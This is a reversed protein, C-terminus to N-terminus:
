HTVTYVSSYNSYVINNSASFQLRVKYKYTSGHSVSWNYEYILNDSYKNYYLADTIKSTFTPVSSFSSTTSMFVEIYYADLYEDPIDKIFNEITVDLGMQSGYVSKVVPAKLKINSSTAPYSNASTGESNTATVIYMNEGPHPATDTYSKSTINSAIRVWAPSANPTGDFRYVTYSTPTGCGSGTAANWSISITSSGSCNVNTPPCPEYNTSSGGGGGGGSTSIKASAYSSKSSEGANNEATVKYYYTTGPNASYDTYSTQYVSSQFTYTGSASTSRYVNYSEAGSVSNWTVVIYSSYATADVGTPTSPKSTTSGGGGGSGSGNFTITKDETWDSHNGKSDYAFVSYTYTTGSVVDDDMISTYTTEYYKWDSNGAKKAIYYGTAGSVSNWSLQVYSSTQSLTFGTPTPLTTSGGGGSSGSSIQEMTLRGSSADFTFKVKLGGELWWYEEGSLTNYGEIEAPDSWHYGGGADPQSNVGVSGGFYTGTYTYVNTYLQNMEEWNAGGEVYEKIYWRTPSGGGGSPTSSEFNCSAKAPKSQKDGNSAILEYSNIGDKPSKDLIRTYSTSQWYSGNKNIEYYSAGSVQKWSLVITNGEQQAKFNSPTSLVGQGECGVICLLVAALVVAFSLFTKKM